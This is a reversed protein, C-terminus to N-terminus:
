KRKNFKNEHCQYTYLKQKNAKNVLVFSGGFIINPMKSSLMSVLLQYSIAKFYVPGKCLNKGAQEAVKYSVSVPVSSSATLKKESM